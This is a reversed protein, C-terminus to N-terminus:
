PIALEAPTIHFQAVLQRAEALAAERLRQREQQVFTSGDASHVLREGMRSPIRSADLSGTRLLPPRLLSM